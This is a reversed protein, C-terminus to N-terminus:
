ATKETTPIAIIPLSQAAGWMAQRGQDRTWAPSLRLVNTFTLGDTGTCSRTEVTLTGHRFKSTRRYCFYYTANPNCVQERFWRDALTDIVQHLDDKNYIPQHAPHPM